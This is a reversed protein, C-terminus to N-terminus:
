SSRNPLLSLPLSSSPSILPVDAEATSAMVRAAAADGGAGRRAPMAKGSPRPLLRVDAVEVGAFPREGAGAAHRV